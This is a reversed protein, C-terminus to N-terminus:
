AAKDLPSAQRMRGLDHPFDDVRIVIDRLENRRKLVAYEAPTV